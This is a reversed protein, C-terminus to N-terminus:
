WGAKDLGYGGGNSAAAYGRGHNGKSEEQEVWGEMEVVVVVEMIRVFIADAADAVNRRM